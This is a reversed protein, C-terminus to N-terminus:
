QQNASHLSGSGKAQGASGPVFPGRLGAPGKPGASALRVLLFLRGCSDCWPPKFQRRGYDELAIMHYLERYGRTFPELPNKKIQKIQEILVCRFSRRTLFRRAHMSTSDHQAM